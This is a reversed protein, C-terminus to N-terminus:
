RFKIIKSLIYFLIAIPKPLASLPAIILWYSFSKKFASLHITIRQNNFNGINKFRSWWILSPIYNYALARLIYTAEDKFENLEESVIKPLNEGFVKFLKYGGTNESKSIISQTKIYIFKSGCRLIPLVWGLQILHSGTYKEPTIINKVLSYNCIISTIYTLNVNTLKTFYKRETEIIELPKNIYYIDDNYINKKWITSLYILDPTKKDLIEIIESLIGHMPADDDGFIWFYKTKVLNVCSIFNKDPGINENRNIIKWEPYKNHFNNIVDITNDTSSNNSIIIEVRKKNHTYENSIINLLFNLEKERNFTPIIITLIKENNM